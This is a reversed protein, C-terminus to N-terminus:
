EKQCPPSNGRNCRRVGSSRRCVPFGQGRKGPSRPGMTTGLGGEPCGTLGLSLCFISCADCLYIVDQGGETPGRVSKFPNQSCNCIRDLSGSDIRASKNFAFLSPLSPRGNKFHILHSHLATFLHVNLNTCHSQLLVIFLFWQM